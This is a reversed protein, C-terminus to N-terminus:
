IEHITIINPHKLAGAARAEQKFRALRVKDASRAAPLVKIAVARGIKPDYARYVEGMGGKGIQSLIEYRGIRTGSHLMSM